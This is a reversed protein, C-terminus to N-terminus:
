LDGQSDIAERNMYECIFGKIQYELSNSLRTRALRKLGTEQCNFGTTGMRSHTMGKFVKTAKVRKRSHRMVKTHRTLEGETLLVLESM